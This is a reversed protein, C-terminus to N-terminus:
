GALASSIPHLTRNVEEPYAVTHARVFANRVINEPILGMRLGVQSPLLHPDKNTRRIDKLVELLKPSFEYPQLLAVALQGGIKDFGEIIKDFVYGDPTGGPLRIVRESVDEKQHSDGDILCYSPYKATPDLNHHHNVAVATGDGALTHIAIADQPADQRARLMARVWDSAFDDEVFIALRADIQGTIARLAHVDLKGQFMENGVAAWIGQSPLPLLADNSHTTFIIQTKKRDAVDILYEVMKTTAVPHLGNEIEEVLILSNEELAEIALVM